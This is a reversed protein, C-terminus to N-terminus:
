NVAQRSRLFEVWKDVDSAEVDHILMRANLLAAILDECLHWPVDARDDKWELVEVRYDSMLKTKGVKDLKSWDLIMKFWWLLDVCYKNSLLAIYLHGSLDIGTRKVLDTRNHVIDTRVRMVSSEARLGIFRCLSIDPLYDPFKKRRFIVAFQEAWCPDYTVEKFDETEMWMLYLMFGNGDLVVHSASSFKLMVNRRSYSFDDYGSFQYDGVWLTSIESSAVVDNIRSVEDKNCSNTLYFLDARSGRGNKLYLGNQREIHLTEIIMKKLRRGKYMGQFREVLRRMDSTDYVHSTARPIHTRDVWSFGDLRLISRLEYLNIDAGPQPVLYSCYVEIHDRFPIRRKLVAMSLWDANLRAIEEGMVDQDMCENEWEEDTMDIRDNRVDWILLHEKGNRRLARLEEPKRITLVISEVNRYQTHKVIPDVCVWQVRDFRLKDRKRFEMLTRLDGCGIYYIVDASYVCYDLMSVLKEDTSMDGELLYDNKIVGNELRPTMMPLGTVRHKKPNAQMLTEIESGNFLDCCRLAYRRLANGFERRLRVRGLGILTELKKPAEPDTLKLQSTSIRIDKPAICDKLTITDKGYSIFIFGHGRLQRITFMNVVGTAYVDRAYKGNQIWVENLSINNKIKWHDLFLKDVLSTLSKSLYLVAHTM